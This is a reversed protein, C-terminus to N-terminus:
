SRKRNTTVCCGCSLGNPGNFEHQGTVGACSVKGLKSNEIDLKDLTAANQGPGSLFAALALTKPDSLDKVEFPAM